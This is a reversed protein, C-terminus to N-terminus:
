EVGGDKAIRAAKAKRRAENWVPDGGRREEVTANEWSSVSKYRRVGLSTFEVVAGDPQLYVRRKELLGVVGCPGLVPEPEIDPDDSIKWAVIPLWLSTHIADVATEFLFFWGATAAVVVAPDPSPSKM